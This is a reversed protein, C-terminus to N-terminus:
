PDLRDQAMWETITRPGQPPPENVGFMRKWLPPRVGQSAIQPQSATPMESGPTLTDVTKRWAARTSEGVRQAGDRVAQLPSPTAPTSDQGAWANRTEDIQSRNPWLQPMRPKPLTVEPFHFEPRSVKAFPSNFM